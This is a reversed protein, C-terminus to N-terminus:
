SREGMAALAAEVLEGTAPALGTDTDPDRCDARVALLAKRMLPAAAILAINADLEADGDGIGRGDQQIVIAIPYARADCGVAEFSLSRGEFPGDVSWEEADFQARWPGPTHGARM